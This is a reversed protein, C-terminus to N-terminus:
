IHSSEAVTSPSQESEVTAGRLVLGRLRAVVELTEGDEVLRALDTLEGELMSPDAGVRKVRM